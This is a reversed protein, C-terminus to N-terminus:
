VRLEKNFTCVLALVPARNYLVILNWKIPAISAVQKFKKRIFITVLQSVFYSFHWETIGNYEWHWILGQTVRKIFKANHQSTAACLLPTAQTWRLEGLVRFTGSLSSVQQSLVSCCTPQMYVSGHLWGCLTFNKFVCGETGLCNLCLCINPIFLDVSTVSINNQMVLQRTFPCRVVSQVDCMVVDYVKKFM